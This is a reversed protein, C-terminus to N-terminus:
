TRAGHDDEEDHLRRHAMARLRAHEIAADAAAEWARRDTAPPMQYASSPDAQQMGYRERWWTIYAIQGPTDAMTTRRQAAGLGDPPMDALLAHAKQAAREQADPSLRARLDRFSRAVAIGKRIDADAM